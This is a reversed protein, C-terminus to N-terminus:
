SPSDVMIEPPSGEGSKWLRQRDARIELVLDPLKRTTAMLELAVLAEFLKAAVWVKVVSRKELSEHGGIMFTYTEGTFLEMATVYAGHVYSDFTKHVFAMVRAIEESGSGRHLLRIRAAIMKERRVYYERARTAFEDPDTPFPAFFQDIFTQQSSNFKGEMIGEAIFVIELAFDAVTRLITYCETILGEQALQWAAHLGSAMRVAKAVQVVEASEVPYSWYFGGKSIPKREPRPLLAAMANVPEDIHQIVQQTVPFDM